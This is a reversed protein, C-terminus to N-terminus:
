LEVAGESEMADLISFAAAHWQDAQGLSETIREIDKQTLDTDVRRACCLRRYTSELDEDEIDKFEFRITIHSM